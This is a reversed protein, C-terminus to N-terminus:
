DMPQNTGRAGSKQYLPLDIFHKLVSLCTNKRHRHVKSSFLSHPRPGLLQTPEYSKTASVTVTPFLLVSLSKVFIRHSPESKGYARHSYNHAKHVTQSLSGGEALSLEM